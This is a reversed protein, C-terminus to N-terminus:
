GQRRRPDLRPDSAPHFISDEGPFAMTMEAPADNKRRGMWALPTTVAALAAAGLGLKTLFNRRSERANTSGANEKPVSL